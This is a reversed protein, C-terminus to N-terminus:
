EVVRSSQRADRRLWLVHTVVLLAITVTAMVLLSLVPREFSALNDSAELAQIVGLIGFFNHFVITGYTNRLVFFFLSTVLGIGTLFLVFGPTNFPPSHAFHYVGFVLSAVLAAGVVSVWRGRGWLLSETATGVLAWCVVVEAVSVVLVQAFANALIVPDFTPPEQFAYFGFGLAGGFLISVLTHPLRGFGARKPSVVGRRALLRLVWVAGVVGILLNAVLAYFFRALTAEPRLLTEIRGELLYTAVVWAL